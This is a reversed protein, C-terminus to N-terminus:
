PKIFDAPKSQYKKIMKAPKRCFSESSDTKQKAAPKEKGFSCSAVLM